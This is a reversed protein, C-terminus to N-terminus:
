LAAGEAPQQSKAANTAPAKESAIARELLRRGQVCVSDARLLLESPRDYHAILEEIHETALRDEDIIVVADALMQAALEANDSEWSHGAALFYHSTTRRAPTVAHYIMVTGLHEGDSGDDNAKTFSDFGSHLCPVHFRLGFRRNIPGSYNFVPQWYTPFEISKMEFRSEVWDPGSSHKPVTNASGSGAGLSNSHLFGIHTLDLLNDHMLTYRSHVYRYVGSAIKNPSNSIGLAVLDPIKNEDALEPDGPWIWIWQWREAVHYSQVRCTKPAMGQSPIAACSGDPRFTIGHYGCQINDGVVKSRGLPYSRHPCRGALAVVKGDETRYLAVPEDLIWREMVQRTVEGSWAAIYWQNKPAFMGDGLPYM